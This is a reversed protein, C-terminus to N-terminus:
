SERHVTRHFSYRIAGYLEVDVDLLFWGVVGGYGEALWSRPHALHVTLFLTATTDTGIGKHPRTTTM